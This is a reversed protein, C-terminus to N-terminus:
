KPHRLYPFVKRVNKCKQEDCSVSECFVYGQGVFAHKLAMLQVNIVCICLKYSETMIITLTWRKGELTATKVLYGTINCHSGRTVCENYLGTMM